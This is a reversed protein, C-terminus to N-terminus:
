FIHPHDLIWHSIKDCCISPLISTSHQFKYFAYPLLHGFLDQASIQDFM